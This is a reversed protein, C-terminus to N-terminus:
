NSQAGELTHPICVATPLITVIDSSAVTHPRVAADSLSELCWAMSGIRVAKPLQTSDILAGSLVFLYCSSPLQTPVHGDLYKHNGHSAEDPM